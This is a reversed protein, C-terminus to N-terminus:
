LGRLMEPRLLDPDGSSLVFNLQDLLSSKDRPLYGSLSLYNSAHVSRLLCNSFRSNEIIIKLEELSQMPSILSMQGHLIQDYIPTGEVPTLTLADVSDPDMKSLLDATARAHEISKEAGGLGLIITVPCKIGAEKIRKGAEVTQGSDVGKNVNRLIDDDGSEVGLYIMDLKLNKLQRLEEVNRLLVDQTTGFCTIKELGPFKLNLYELIEILRPFPYVLADGDQLFIKRGDWQDAIAYVIEPIGPVRRGVNTYLCLADIEAKVEAIDRINLRHGYFYNCFTCTSNSCGYTVPLFYSDGEHPPRVIDPRKFSM